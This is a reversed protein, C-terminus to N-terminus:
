ESDELPFDLNMTINPIVISRNRNNAVAMIAKSKNPQEFKVSSHKKAQNVAETNSITKTFLIDQLVKLDRNMAGVPKM